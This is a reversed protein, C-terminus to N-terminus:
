TPPLGREDFFTARHRLGERRMRSRPVAEIVRDEADVWDVWEEQMMSEGSQETSDTRWLRSGM